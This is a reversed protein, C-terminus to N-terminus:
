LLFAHLNISVKIKKSQIKLESYDNGRQFHKPKKYFFPENESYQFDLSEMDFRFSGKPKSDFCYLNGTSKSKIKLSPIKGRSFGKSASRYHILSIIIDYQVEFNGQNGYWTSNNEALSIPGLEIFTDSLAKKRNLFRVNKVVFERSPRRGFLRKACRLFKPM